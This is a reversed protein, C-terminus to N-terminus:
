LPHPELLRYVREAFVGAEIGLAQAAVLVFQLGPALGLDSSCGKEGDSLGM